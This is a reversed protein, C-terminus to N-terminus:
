TPGAHVGGSIMRLTHFLVTSDKRRLPEELMVPRSRCVLWQPEKKLLCLYLVAKPILAVEGQHVQHLLGTLM